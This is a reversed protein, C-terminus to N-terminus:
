LLEIAWNSIVRLLSHKLISADLPAKHFIIDLDVEPFESEFVPRPSPLPHIKLFSCSHYQFVSRYLFWELNFIQLEPISLWQSLDFVHTASTPPSALPKLIWEPARQWRPSQFALDAKVLGAMVASTVQCWSAAQERPSPTWFVAVTM